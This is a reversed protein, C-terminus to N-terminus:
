CAIVITTRSCASGGVEQRDAQPVYKALKQEAYIPEFRTM